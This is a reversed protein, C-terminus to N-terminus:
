ICVYMCICYVCVSCVIYLVITIDIITFLVCQINDIKAQITYKEM